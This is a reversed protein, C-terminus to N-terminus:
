REGGVVADFVEREVESDVVIVVERPPEGVYFSRAANCHYRNYVGCVDVNVQEGVGIM